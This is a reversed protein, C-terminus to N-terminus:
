PQKQTGAAVSLPKKLTQLTRVTTVLLLIVQGIESIIGFSEVSEIYTLSTFPIQFGNVQTLSFLLNQHRKLAQEGQAYISLSPLVPVTLTAFRTGLDPSVFVALFLQASLYGLWPYDNIASKM